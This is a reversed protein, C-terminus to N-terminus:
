MKKALENFDWHKFLRDEIRVLPLFKNDLELLFNFVLELEVDQEILEFDFIITAIKLSKIKVTLDFASSQFYTKCFVQLNQASPINDAFQINWTRQWKNASLRRKSPIISDMELPKCQAMM